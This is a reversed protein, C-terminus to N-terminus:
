SRAIAGNGIGPTAYGTTPWPLQRSGGHAQMTEQMHFAWEDPASSIVAALLKRDVRKLGTIKCWPAIGREIAMLSCHRSVATELVQSLGEIAGGDGQSGTQDDGRRGKDRRIFAEMQGLRPCHAVCSGDRVCLVNEVVRNQEEDTGDVLPAYYDQSLDIRDREILLIGIVPRSGTVFKENRTDEGKRSRKLIRFGKL